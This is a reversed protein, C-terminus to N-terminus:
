PQFARVYFTGSAPNCTGDHCCHRVSITGNASVWPQFSAGDVMAANPVGLEVTSTTTACALSITKTECPDTSAVSAFDLAASTQCADTLVRSPSYSGGVAIAYSRDWNVYVPPSRAAIEPVTGGTGTTGTFVVQLDGTGADFATVPSSTSWVFGGGGSLAATHGSAPSYITSAPGDMRDVVVDCNGEVTVTYASSANGTLTTGDLNLPGIAGGSTGPDDEGTRRVGGWVSCKERCTACFGARMGALPFYNGEMWVSLAGGFGLTKDNTPGPGLNNYAQLMVLPAGTGSYRSHIFRGTGTLINRHVGLRNAGPLGRVLASSATTAKYSNHVVEVAGGSVGVFQTANGTVTFDEVSVWGSAMEGNQPDPADGAAAILFAPQANFGDGEPAPSPITQGMGGTITAGPDDYIQYGSGNVPQTARGNDELTLVAGTNSRIPWLHDTGSGTGSTILVWKNAVENDAWTTSTTWSDLACTTRAGATVATITGAGTGGDPQTYTKRAGRIRLRGRKVGGDALGHADQTVGFLYCGTGSFGATGQITVDDSVRRGALRNCAAQYTACPNYVTCDGNDNGGAAVYLTLPTNIRVENSRVLYDGDTLSENQSAFLAAMCLVVLSSVLLKIKVARM